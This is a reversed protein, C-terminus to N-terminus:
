YIEENGTISRLANGLAQHLTEYFSIHHTPIGNTHVIGDKDIRLHPGKESNLVIDGDELPSAGSEICIVHSQGDCHITM